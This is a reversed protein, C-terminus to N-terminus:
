VRILAFIHSRLCLIGRHMDPFFVTHMSAWWLGTSRICSWHLDNSSSEDLKQFPKCVCIVVALKFHLWNKQHHHRGRLCSPDMEKLVAAYIYINTELVALSNKKTSMRHIQRFSNFLINFVFQQHSVISRESGGDLDVPRSIQGLLHNQSPGGEIVKDMIRQKPWPNKKANWLRRRGKYEPGVAHCTAFLWKCLVALQQQQCEDRPLTRRHLYKNKKMM